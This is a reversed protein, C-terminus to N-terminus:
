LSLFGDGRRMCPGPLCYMLLVATCYLLNLVAALVCTRGDM